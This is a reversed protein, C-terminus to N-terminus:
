KAIYDPNPLTPIPANTKKLWKDLKSKLKKSIQPYRLSCEHEEKIDIKLNYLEIHKDEYFYILKWDGSRIISFPTARWKGQMGKYGQLYAPFHWFLDRSKSTKMLKFIDKGDLNKAPKGGAINIFTPYLDTGIVPKTCISGPKTVGPYRIILPERIGGEYPMGKGGRLMFNDTIPESGGNDSFFVVITNNALNEDDLTKLVRGINTDLDEIMAAYIPNKHYKGPKKAKYKDILAQPAQLPSHVAYHSLYVFFPQKHGEKKIFKIAENTLRDTLYEGKQGGELNIHKKGDKAYPYFYTYPHGAKNGGVNISFGQSIPGTHGGNEDEGMHWKGFSGSIYGEKSLAEAISVFSSAVSDATAIPIIKRDKSKGRTSPAVTYVGHRPTYLGTMICSRSPASNPANAYAQTFMVGEKALKDINPTEYFDSGMYSPDNYGMDDVLIFLINPKSSSKQKVNARAGHSCLTLLPFCLLAGKISTQTIKKM